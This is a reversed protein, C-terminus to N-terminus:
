FLEDVLPIAIFKQIFRRTPQEETIRHADSRYEALLAALRGAFGRGLVVFGNETDHLFSRKNLNVGGIMSLRGDVVFIKSHLIKAEARSEYIEMRGYYKNVFEKNVESLIKGALDGRLDLRTVLRIRVGRELAREFAADIAPTQNLYPNSIDITARASDIMAVFYDELAHDDAYPISAFHRVITHGAFRAPAIRRDSQALLAPPRTAYNGADRHWLTSFHVAAAEAFRRGRIRADFDNFFVFPNLGGYGKTYQNLEQWRSLDPPEEYLFGDHFNRGGIITVNDRPNAALTVLLKIHNVRHFQALFEKMSVGPPPSWRWEDLEINPHNGVLGEILKRDKRLLSARAVLIRISTGREAHHALLRAFVQGSFDNKFVLSSILISQLQPAASFDIPLFPNQADIMSQPLPRGLLASVKAQFADVADPFPEVARVDYVCGISIDSPAFFFKEVPGLRDTKPLVCVDYREDFPIDGGVRRQVRRLEVSRTKATGPFRYDLHCSKTTEAIGLRVRGRLRPSYPVVFDAAQGAAYHRRSIGARVEFPGDCRATVALSRRDAKYSDLASAGPPHALVLEYSVAQMSDIPFVGSAKPSTEPNGLLLRQSAERWPASFRRSAVPGFFHTQPLGLAAASPLETSDPRDKLAQRVEFRAIDHATLPRTPEPERPAQSLGASRALAIRAALARWYARAIRDGGIRDSPATETAAPKSQPLPPLNATSLAGGAPAAGSVASWRAADGACGSLVLAALLLLASQRRIGTASAIRM